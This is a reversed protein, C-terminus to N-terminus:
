ESEIEEATEEQQEVTKPKVVKPEVIKKPTQTLIIRVGVFFVMLVLYIGAFVFLGRMISESFSVGTVLCYLIGVITVFFSFKIIIQTIM